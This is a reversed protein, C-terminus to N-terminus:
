VHVALPDYEEEGAGMNGVLPDYAVRSIGLTSMEQKPFDADLDGDLVRAIADLMDDHKSVPFTTFEDNIFEDVFDHLKGDYTTYLLKRPFWFRSNEFVPVLRRIRDAKPMSGGLEKITFRYGEQEQVYRLHEIDSQMGYKEYGVKAPHWKKVFQFVRKARETLNLRDRIADVLYYNGDEGLGVVVMVTYDSTKKKESAPDVLLYYRMKSPNKIVDYWQMWDRMFGMADDALPNCLLQSSAVARGMEQVKKDFTEKSWVVPKGDFTGDDTAPHIRPTAAKRDMITAYTDSQHYRTGVYRRKCEEGSGLNLSMAWSETTKQIQEPTSVSDKTVVDDYVMLKYHKSTPAGDVLGWAELTSEKPNSNRKVIIGDDLSWRVAEKWPEKYLIDPFLDKLLENLEFERKVQALFAKAIPRTHSFISATIDPDRLIDQVTMGFTVTSSKWHERSWIDIYGDREAEVERVRAYVWENIMDKRRCVVVLLFFLDTLCLERMTAKSGQAVVMDYLHLSEQMTLDNKM